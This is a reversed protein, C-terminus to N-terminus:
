ERIQGNGNMIYKITVLENLGMPGRAHMKQTSIGMEAGFGMAGGDTFRTSANVYVAAADIQRQFKKSNQLNNTMISESHRTGYKNIHEIAEDCSEVVKIALIYDLYETEWDLNKAPIVDIIESTRECGRLEVKDGIKKKLAPLFEAAIKKNVLLTECANCVGPRQTKANEVVDLSNKLDASDDIYVHCNGVGTEITPVKSNETVFKILGAGGRPIVLDLYETMGILEGVVSRDTDEVLEIMLPSVATDKLGDKVANVLAKNSNIASSSGRLLITNGSKLALTFADITVNPRSEYIISIVGLPVTMKSVTIGNELTWVDRSNWVPDKLAIVTHIGEIMSEIRDSSLKLRDILSSSMGSLAASAVDESNAKLIRQKNENLSKAVSLLAKNKESTNLAQLFASAKKLSLCQEQLKTM